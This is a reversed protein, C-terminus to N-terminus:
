LCQCIYCSEKKCQAIHDDIEAQESRHRLMAEPCLGDCFYGGCDSCPESNDNAYLWNRYGSCYECENCPDVISCEM